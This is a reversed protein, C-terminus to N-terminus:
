CSNTSCTLQSLGLPLLPELLFVAMAADDLEIDVFDGTQNMENLADGQEDKDFM